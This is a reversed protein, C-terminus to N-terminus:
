AFIRMLALVGEEGTVIVAGFIPGDEGRENFRCFQGADVRLRPEGIYEGTQDIEPGVIAEVFLQRSRPRRAGAVAVRQRVQERKV